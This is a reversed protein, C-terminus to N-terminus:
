EVTESADIGAEEYLKKALWGHGFFEIVASATDCVKAENRDTEGSWVTHAVRAAVYKGQRTVYLELTTWRGPEGSYEKSANNSSNSVSAIQKGMFKLDPANDREAIFVTETITKMIERERRNTAGRSQSEM